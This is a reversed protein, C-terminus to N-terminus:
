FDDVADQLCNKARNGSFQAKVEFTVLIDNPLVQDDNQIKIGIVDCGKTSEDPIDKHNYRNRPVWYSLIFELFDAVLIEGFDGSRIGPGFGGLADPFIYRSLYEARSLGTGNRLTDIEDERISLMLLYCVIPPM